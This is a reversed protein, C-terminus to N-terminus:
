YIIDWIKSEPQTTYRYRVDRTQTNNEPSAVLYNNHFWSKIYFDHYVNHPSLLAMLYWQSKRNFDTVNNYSKLSVSGEEDEDDTYDENPIMYLGTSQHKIRVITDVGTSEIIWKRESEPTNNVLDLVPKTHGDNAILYENYNKHKIQVAQASVRRIIEEFSLPSESCLVHTSLFFFVILKFIEIM